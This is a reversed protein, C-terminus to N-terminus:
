KVNTEFLHRCFINELNNTLGNSARMCNMFQWLQTIELFYRLISIHDIPYTHNSPGILYKPYPTPFPHFSKAKM